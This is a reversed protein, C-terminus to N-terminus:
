FYNFIYFLSNMCVEVVKEARETENNNSENEEPKETQAELNEPQIEQQQDIKPEEITPISDELAQVQLSM